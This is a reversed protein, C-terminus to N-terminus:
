ARADGTVSTLKFAFHHASLWLSFTSGDILIPIGVFARIHFTLAFTIANIGETIAFLILSLPHLVLLMTFAGVIELVVVFIYAEPEAIVLMTM